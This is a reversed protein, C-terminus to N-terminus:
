SSSILVTECRVCLEENASTSYKRCRKCLLNDNSKLSIQPTSLDSNKILTVSSVQLINCLESTWSQTENQLKTLKTFMKEDVTITADLTLTKTNTMKNLSDRIVLASQIIDEIDPSDWEDPLYHPGLHHLPVSALNEPHHLWIEEALHPLIPAISRTVVALVEGIVDVAGIRSPSTAKDCYLRDKIMHCYIASVDNTIFNIITKCVNHYEFTNYSKQIKKNYHYLQHLMYKDLYLLEAQINKNDPQGYPYLAGLLFRLSNRIKQVSELSDKLVTNVIPIKNHQVGHHAVWWRLCDVGYVPQKNQNKGGRIIEEPSIVNGLSKSMKVGNKDVTFGHVFISKFPPVDQLAISTLLSSQFWGNFQDMGELYLDAKGDPLVSSWSVGSDFWIDMIDQGKELDDINLNHKDIYDKGILDEITMSWWCDSGYQEILKCLREVFDWVRQRSICWYPRQQLQQNLCNIAVSERSKPYFNVNGVLDMAKKKLIDTNIFWQNSARTIVPKKTRWDYPYSHIIKETHVVNEGIHDLVTKGGETLVDLGAFKAGAEDTYKGDEDVLSIVPIKHALGVLFDETGHAFATHVLGTGIKNSVHNSSLFPLEIGTIPHHYTANLLDNGIKKAVEDVLEQAIIYIDGKDNEVIAYTIDPSYSLAQNAILTWPTTTWTLGYIKRNEYSKLKDPLKKLLLSVTACQSEHKDNHELESEALATRSSPSWHVPKFDRYILKKEYLNIFQKLQNCVYSTENTFYCGTDQWDAMVGWSIFEQQQKKTEQKAYERALKRLKIPNSKDTDDKIKNIVKLEIPLGHCDWGPKYHVRQGIIVRSRTTIDKLIKNIAHGLHPSGNAYPPGDHLVFDPGTLNKRQWNYLDQFGCKDNLYNDMEIRKVGSLRNPLKTQPLLVSNTYKKEVSKDPQAYYRMWSKTLIPLNKNLYKSRFKILSNM